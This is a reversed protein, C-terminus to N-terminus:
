APSAGLPHRNAAVIRVFEENSIEGSANDIIFEIMQGINKEYPDSSGIIKRLSDADLKAGSFTTYEGLKTGPEKEYVVVTGLRTGVIIYKRGTDPDIAKKRGGIPCYICDEHIYFGTLGEWLVTQAVIQELGEANDFVDNFIRTTKHQVSNM